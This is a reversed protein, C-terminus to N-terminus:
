LNLIQFQLKRSLRPGRPSFGCWRSALGRCTVRMCLSLREVWLHHRGWSRNEGADSPPYSLATPLSSQLTLRLPLSWTKSVVSYETRIYYYLVGRQTNLVNSHLFLLITKSISLLAEPVTNITDTSGLSVLHHISTKEAAPARTGRGGEEETVPRKGKDM